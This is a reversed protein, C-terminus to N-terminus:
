SRVLELTAYHLNMIAPRETHEGGTLVLEQSEPREGNRTVVWFTNARIKEAWVTRNRKAGHPRFTLRVYM